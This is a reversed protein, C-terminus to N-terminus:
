PIGGDSPGVCLWYRELVLDPGGDQQSQSVTFCVCHFGLADIVEGPNLANCPPIPLSGGDPLVPVDVTYVCGLLLIAALWAALLVVVVSM